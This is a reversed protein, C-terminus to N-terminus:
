RQVHHSQVFQRYLEQSVRRAAAAQEPALDRGQAPKESPAIVFRYHLPLFEDKQLPRKFFYGFRGYDRMSLEEVPNDPDNLALVSYWQDGQPFLLRCWNLNPGKVVGAPEQLYSTERKRDYVEGNARFHV